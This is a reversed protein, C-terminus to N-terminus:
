FNIVTLHSELGIVINLNRVNNGGHSWSNCSQDDICILIYGFIFHCMKLKLSLTSNGVDCKKIWELTFLLFFM